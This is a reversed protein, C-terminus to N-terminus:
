GDGKVEAWVANADEIRADSVMPTVIMLVEEVEQPSAGNNLVGRM